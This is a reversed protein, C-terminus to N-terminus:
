GAVLVRDGVSLGASVVATWGNASQLTTVEARVLGDTSARMVYSGRADSRLAITPVALSPDEAEGFLLTVPQGAAPAEGPVFEVRIDKGPPRGAGTDEAEFDGIMAVSGSAPEGGSPQVLVTDGVVIQDAEIVSARVEVYPVGTGLEALPRADDLVTGVPAISTITAAAHMPASYFESMKVYIEEGGPPEVKASQYLERVARLTQEGVEGDAPLGLAAQLARVDSGEDALRLDRYLPVELFLIFLPRDSVTAILDGSTLITGPSAIVSTVVATAAGEPAAVKISVSTTGAVEGQLRIEDSVVRSQATAYVPIVDSRAELVSADPSRVLLGLAFAGCAVMVAIAVFAIARWPHSLWRIPKPDTSTRTPISSAQPVESM